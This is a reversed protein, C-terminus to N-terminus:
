SSLNLGSGRLKEDTIMDLREAMETSLHRKWDGVEGRRFYSNRPFPIREVMKLEGQNNVALGTLSQFSCLESIERAVGEREEDESFPRGLFVALRRLNGVPDRTMEEYHLFLVKGPRRLSENWYELAHEWIPGYPCVGSCFMEFAENMSVTRASSDVADVFHLLSVFVDKPDRVIYVMKCPSVHLSAPLSSYPTHLSWIRPSPLAGLDPDPDVSFVDELCQVLEQPSATRLPHSPGTPSHRHRHLLSYVLAKLWTTGTKPFAAIYVDDPRTVLRRRMSLTGPLWPVLLWFGRYNCLSTWREDRPLTSILQDLPEENGHKQDTDRTAM